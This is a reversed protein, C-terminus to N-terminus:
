EPQLPDTFIRGHPGGAACQLDFVAHGQTCVVRETQGRDRVGEHAHGAVGVHAAQDVMGFEAARRLQHETRAAVENQGAIRVGHDDADLDHTARTCWAPSFQCSM